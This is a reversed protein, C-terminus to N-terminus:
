VRRRIYELRFNFDVEVAEEAVEEVVATAAAVVVAEM